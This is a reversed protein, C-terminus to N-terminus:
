AHIIGPSGTPESVSPHIYEPNAGLSEDVEINGMPLMAPENVYEYGSVPTQFADYTNNFETTDTGRLDPLYKDVFEKFKGGMAGMGSVGASAASKDAILQVSRIGFFIGVGLCLGSLWKTEKFAAAFVLGTASLGLNTLIKDPLVNKKLVYERFGMSGAVGVLMGVGMELGSIATKKDISKIFNTNM